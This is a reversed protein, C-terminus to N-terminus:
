ISNLSTSTNESIGLFQRLDTLPQVKIIFPVLGPADRFQALMAPNINFKIESGGNQTQLHMKAATLDIGGRIAKSQMKSTLHFMPGNKIIMAANVARSFPETALEGSVENDGM